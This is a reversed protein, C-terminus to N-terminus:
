GLCHEPFSPSSLCIIDYPPLTSLSHSYSASRCNKKNQACLSSIYSFLQMRVLMDSEEWESLSTHLTCILEIIVALMETNHFFFTHKVHCDDIMLFFITLLTMILSNERGPFKIQHGLDLALYHGEIVRRSPCDVLVQSLFVSSIM